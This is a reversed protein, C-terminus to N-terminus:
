TQGDQVRVSVRLNLEFMEQVAQGVVKGPGSLSPLQGGKGVFEFSPGKKLRSSGNCGFRLKLAAGKVAIRSPGTAIREDM